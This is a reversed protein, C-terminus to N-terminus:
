IWKFNFKDKDEKSRVRDWLGKDFKIFDGNINVRGNGTSLFYPPDAFIMDVKTEIHELLELCDGKYLTFDDSNYYPEIM